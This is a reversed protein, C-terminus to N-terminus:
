EDNWVARPGDGGKVIEGVLFPKEGKEKLFAAAKEAQDPPLVVIMGLGLNFTRRMEKEDVRGKQRILEFIPPEDWSGTRVAACLGEPIVRGLNGAIGGGTVHALAKVDFEKLLGLLPKVYIRTPRLLEEGLSRGFAENRGELFLDASEEVVKRALSFGNSHLGDSALGVLVDGESAASGDLLRSEEAVGVVFGALDYHGAPYFGPMEATEGGVLSCGARRCGEAIGEIVRAAQAVELKGTSFYDLFFLPEAGVALVDNVCMAVLDIGITEHRDLSFAIKLKTGVGDTSLVLRPNKYGSPLSCVAGFGGLGAGVEPRYTTRAAKSIAEILREGAEIDVGADKYTAGAM